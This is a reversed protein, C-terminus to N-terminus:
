FRRTRRTGRRVMVTLTDDTLRKQGLTVVARSIVKRMREDAIEHFLCILPAIAVPDGLRVLANVTQELARPKLSTLNEILAQRSPADGIRALASAAPSQIQSEPDCLARTLPEAAEGMGIKGLANAAARRVPRSTDDLAGILGTIALPTRLAGLIRAARVRRREDDSESLDHMASAVRLPNTRFVHSLMRRIPVSGPDNVRMALIGSVAILLAGVIFVIQYPGLRLPGVAWILDANADIFWGALLPGAMGAGGVTLFNVTAIYMTRSHRPTAQLLLGNFGLFVGVASLGEILFGVAAIGLASAYHHPAFALLLPVAIRGFVTFALVPRKGYVDCLLGFLRSAVLMGVFHMSIVLQADRSSMGLREVMYLAYFSSAGLVSFHFFCSFILFPRFSKDRLPLTVVRWFNQTPAPEPEPEPVWWFLLIDGLGLVM